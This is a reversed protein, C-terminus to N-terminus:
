AQEKSGILGPFLWLWGGGRLGRGGQGTDQVGRPSSRHAAKKHLYLRVIGGEPIGGLLLELRNSEGAGVGQGLADELWGAATGAAGVARRSKAVVVTRKRAPSPRAPPLLLPVEPAPLGNMSCGRQRWQILRMRVGWAGAGSAASPLTLSIQSRARLTCV